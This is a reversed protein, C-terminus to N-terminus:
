LTKNQFHPAVVVGFLFILIQVCQLFSADKDKIIKNLEKMTWSRSMRNNLSNTRHNTQKRISCCLVMLLINDVVEAFTTNVYSSVLNLVYRDNELAILLLWWKKLYVLAVKGDEAIM